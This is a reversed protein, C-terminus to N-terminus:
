ELPQPRLRAAVTVYAVPGGTDPDTTPIPGTLEGFGRVAADGEYALLVAQCVGALAPAEADTETHAVLRVTASRTVPYRGFAADVSVVVYPLAPRDPDDPAYDKTVFTVGAAHAPVRARLVPLAALKADPFTVAPKM